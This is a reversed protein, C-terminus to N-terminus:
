IGYFVVSARAVVGTLIHSYGANLFTNNWRFTGSDFYKVTMLGGTGLIVAPLLWMRFTRIRDSIQRRYEYIFAGAIFYFLMNAYSSFPM